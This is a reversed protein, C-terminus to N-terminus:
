LGVGGKKLGTKGGASDVPFLYLLMQQLHLVSFVTKFLSVVTSLDIVQM